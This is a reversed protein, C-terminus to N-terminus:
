REKRPVVLLQKKADVLRDLLEVIGDYTDGIVEPHHIM